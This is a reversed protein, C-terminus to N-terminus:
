FVRMVHQNLEVQRTITVGFRAVEKEPNLRRFEFNLQQSQATREIEPIFIIWFPGIKADKSGIRARM